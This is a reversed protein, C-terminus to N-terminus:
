PVQVAGVRGSRMIEMMEPYAATTHHTIGVVGIRGEEKLGEL